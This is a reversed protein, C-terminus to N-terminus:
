RGCPAPVGEGTWMRGGSGLECGRVLTSLYLVAFVCCVRVYLRVCVFVSGPMLVLLCVQMHACAYDYAWVSACKNAAMRMSVRLCGRLMCVCVYMDLAKGKAKWIETNM